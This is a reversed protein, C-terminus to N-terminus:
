RRDSHMQRLRGATWDTVDNPDKGDLASGWQGYMAVKDEGVLAELLRTADRASVEDEDDRDELNDLIALVAEARIGAAKEKLSVSIDGIETSHDEFPVYEIQKRVVDREWRDLRARKWRNLSAEHVLLDIEM